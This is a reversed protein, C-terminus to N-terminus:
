CSERGLIVFWYKERLESTQSEILERLETLPNNVNITGVYGVIFRNTPLYTEKFEKGIDASQTTFLEVDVGQPLCLVDRKIGLENNVRHVLNPM